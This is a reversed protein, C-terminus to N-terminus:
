RYSLKKDLYAHNAFLSNIATYLKARLNRGYRRYYVAILM